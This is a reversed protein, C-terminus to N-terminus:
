INNANKFRMKLLKKCLADVDQEDLIVKENIMADLCSNIADLATQKLSQSNFINIM